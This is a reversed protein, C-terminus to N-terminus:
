VPKLRIHPGKPRYNIVVHAINYVIGYHPIALSIQSINCTGRSLSKGTADINRIAEKEDELTRRLRRAVKSQVREELLADVFVDFASADNREKILLKLFDELKEKSTAKSRISETDCSDLLGGQVLYTIYRSPDGLNQRLYPLQDRLVKKKVEADDRDDM